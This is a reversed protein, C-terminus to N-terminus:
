AAGKNEEDPPNGDDLPISPLETEFRIAKVNDNFLRDVSFYLQTALQNLRNLAEPAIQPETRQDRQAGQAGTMELVQAIYPVMAVREMYAHLELRDNKVRLGKVEETRFQANAKSLTAAHHLHRLQEFKTALAMLVLLPGSAIWMTIVLPSQLTLSTVSSPPLLYQDGMDLAALVEDCIVRTADLAEFFGY